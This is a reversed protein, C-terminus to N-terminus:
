ELGQPYQLQEPFFPHSVSSYASVTFFYLFPPCSSILILVWHSVRHITQTSIYHCGNGSMLFCNSPTSSTQFIQSLKCQRQLLVSSGRAMPQVVPAWFFPWHLSTAKPIVPVNITFSTKPKSISNNRKRLNLFLPESINLLKDFTLNQSQHNKGCETRTFKVKFDADEGLTVCKAQFNCFCM